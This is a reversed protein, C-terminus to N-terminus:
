SERYQLPLGTPFYSAATEGAWVPHNKNQGIKPLRSLHSVLVIHWSGPVRNIPLARGNPYDNHGIARGCSWLLNFGVIGVDSMALFGGRLLKCFQLMAILGNTTDGWQGLMGAVLNVANLCGKICGRWSAKAGYQAHLMGRREDFSVSICM